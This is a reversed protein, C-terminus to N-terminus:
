PSVRYFIRGVEDQLRQLTAKCADADGEARCLADIGEGVGRWFSAYAARDLGDVTASVAEAVGPSYCDESSKSRAVAFLSLIKSAFVDTPVARLLSEVLKESNGDGVEELRLSFDM